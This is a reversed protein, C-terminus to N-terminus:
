EVTDRMTFCDHSPTDCYMVGYFSNAGNTNIVFLDAREESHVYVVIAPRSTLHDGEGFWYLVTDGKHVTNMESM